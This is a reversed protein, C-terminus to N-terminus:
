VKHRYRLLCDQNRTIPISYLILIQKTRPRPYVSMINNEAGIRRYKQKLADLDRRFEDLWPDNKVFEGGNVGFVCPSVGKKQESVLETATGNSILWELKWCDLMRGKHGNATYGDKKMAATLQHKRLGPYKRESEARVRQKIEDHSLDPM